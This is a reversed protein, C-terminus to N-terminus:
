RLPVGFDRALVDASVGAVAPNQGPWTRVWAVAPHLADFMRQVDNTRSFAMITMLAVRMLRTGLGQGLLVVASCKLKPGWVRLRDTAVQRVEPAIRGISEAEFVVVQSIEGWEAIVGDEVDFDAQLDEVTPAKTFHVCVLPGFQILRAGPRERITQWVPDKMNGSYHVWRRRGRTM